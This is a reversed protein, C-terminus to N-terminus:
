CECESYEGLLAISNRCNLHTLLFSVDGRNEHSCRCYVDMAGSESNVACGDSARGELLNANIVIRSMEDNSACILRCALCPVECECSGFGSRPGCGFNAAPGFNARDKLLNSCGAQGAASRPALPFTRRWLRLCSLSGAQALCLCRMKSPVPPIRWVGSAAPAQAISEGNQM